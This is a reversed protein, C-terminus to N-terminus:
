PHLDLDLAQRANSATAEALSEPPIGRLAAVIGGIRPLEAPTNLGQAAGATREAATRYLWQPPIDPLDTELVLAELPLETVLRLLQRAADFTVAGGFGLCFGREIFAQAQQLSGNFAHAIGGEGAM